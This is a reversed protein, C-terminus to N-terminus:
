KKMKEFFDKVVKEESKKAVIPEFHKKCYDQFLIKGEKALVRRFIEEQLEDELGGFAGSSGFVWLYEIGDIVINVYRFGALVESGKLSNDLALEVHLGGMHENKRIYDFVGSIFDTKQRKDEIETKKNEILLALVESDYGSEVLSKIDEIDESSFILDEEPIFKKHASWIYRRKEDKEGDTSLFIEVNNDSTAAYIGKRISSPKLPTKIEFEIKEFIESFKKNHEDISDQLSEKKNDVNEGLNDPIQEM